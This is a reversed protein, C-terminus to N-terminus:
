ECDMVKCKSLEGEEIKKLLLKALDSEIKRVDELSLDYWKDIWCFIQRHFSTFLQKYMNKLYGEARTQLGFVKFEAFVLKYCCLLPKQKDNIWEGPKLPGRGTKVSKFIAPDEDEKYDNPSVPEGIDINIIERKELQEPTLNHVNDEALGNVCAKTITDLEIRFSNRFYENTIVTKVIPYMNWSKEHLVTSDKPLVKRIFWPLKSSIKYLKHTYQGHNKSDLLTTMAGGSTGFISGNASTYSPESSSQTITNSPTLAIGNGNNNEINFKVNSPDITKLNNNSDSPSQPSTPEGNSNEKFDKKSVSRKISEKSSSKRFLSKALNTMSSTISSGSSSSLGDNGTAGSSMQTEYDEYEPLKSLDLRGEKTMQLAFLDNNIIEVGEGGGTNIRSMEAFSWLQGILNEEVTLPMFIRYELIKM